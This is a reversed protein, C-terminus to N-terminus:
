YIEVVQHCIVGVSKGILFGNHPIENGKFEDLEILIFKLKVAETYTPKIPIFKSRRQSVFCVSDKIRISIAIRCNETLNPEQLHRFSDFCPLWTRAAWRAEASGLQGHLGRVEMRRNLISQFM